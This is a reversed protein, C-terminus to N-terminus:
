LTWGFSRGLREELATVHPRYYDALWARTEPDMKDAPISNYRRPKEPPLPPVGLFRHMQAFTTGPDAYLDESRVVHLQHPYFADLWPGLHELYRGRALYSCFDHRESYYGPESVIREAEGALRDKEAELAERFPLTETRNLVREHHHSWVRDVPNRLLVIIKVAPITELVRGLVLPHFMYYPAAEGVVPSVGHVRESRQRVADSPFHSLYWATGRHYNQDFFHTKKANEVGPWMPLISPHRQLGRITSTTGGRKTGIILFDPFQRSRNTARGYARFVPRSAEKAWQPSVQKLRQATTM